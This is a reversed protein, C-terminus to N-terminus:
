RDRLDKAVKEVNMCISEVVCGCGAGGTNHWHWVFKAEQGPKLGLSSM